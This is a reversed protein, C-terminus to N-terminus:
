DDPLLRACVGFEWLQTGVLAQREFSTLDGRSLSQWCLGDVVALARTEVGPLATLPVTEAARRLGAVEGAREGSTVEQLEALLVSLEGALYQQTM